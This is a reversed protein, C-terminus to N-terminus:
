QGAGKGTLLDLRAQIGKVRGDMPDAAQLYTRYLEAAEAPQGMREYTGGLYVLM